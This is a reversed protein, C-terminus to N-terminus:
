QKLPIKTIFITLKKWNECWFPSMDKTAVRIKIRESKNESM